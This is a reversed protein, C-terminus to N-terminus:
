LQMVHNVHASFTASVITMAITIHQVYYKYTHICTYM